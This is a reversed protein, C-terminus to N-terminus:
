EEPTANKTPPTKQYYQLLGDVVADAYERYISKRPKGAVVPMGPYDGAQIREYVEQSNMVYPEFFIVPCDYLRNALLNRAWLYPHGAVNRARKSDAEYPYPPLAAQKAFVDALVGAVAAEEHITRQLIKRIMELRQDDYGIEEDTYAGNLLIHLHNEEVLKPNAPDGWAVANFHLCLVLDPKLTQNVHDARARIESTRYFLSEAAKNLYFPNTMSPNERSALDVLQSPRDKTLPETNKRVLSVKAGQAELLPQILKAVYLTMDGETVPRGDGIKFWREEMQAWDGGLHGADIAIHVGQLLPKTPDFTMESKKRWFRPVKKESGPQAFFLRYRRDLSGGSELIWAGKEDIQIYKQWVDSCTFYRSLDDLFQQRTLTMQYADLSKWDPIKGMPSLRYRPESVAPPEGTKGLRQQNWGVWLAVITASLILITLLSVTKRPSFFKM